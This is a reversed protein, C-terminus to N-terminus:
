HNVAHAVGMSEQMAATDTYQQFKRVKDGHMMWIHCFPADMAKGTEKYKGTYRGEVIVTDGADYFLVPEVKFDDWEENLRVFLKNLVEEPGTFVPVTRYPNGEAERWEIEPHMADLVAPVEGRDFAAYLEKLHEVNNM